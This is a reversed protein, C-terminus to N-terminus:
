QGILSNPIESIM